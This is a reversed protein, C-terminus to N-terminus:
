EEVELESVTLERGTLLSVDLGECTPCKLSVDGVIWEAGCARCRATAEVEEIALPVGDALTGERIVEWAFDLCEAVVGAFRGIRVHVRTLRASEHDALTRLVTELIGTAISAEHM